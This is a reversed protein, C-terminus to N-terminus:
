YSLTEGKLAPALRPQVRPPAAQEYARAWRLLTAESFPRGLLEIAVPLGDATLGAPLIVAPLGTTSSIANDRVGGDSTGVPPAPLGKVPYVLGDVGHADMLDILRQKLQRQQQLRRLYERNTELVGVDLNERYRTELNGGKLFKGGAIFAAWTAAPSSPGRRRLYADLAVQLEFSNVRLTPMMGVLDMGTTLGDISTRGPGTFHALAREVLANAAAFEPGTRFLDRLIGIRGALPGDGSATAAIPPARGLGEQTSLDDPDFGQIASLVLAADALSRAHVGIRDQTFSIPIVGSRSVLGRTPAIAVIGTNAAPGRISLGTETAIGAAAFGAAVAVATGGSSGGPNRAADHPNLTQGGLSSLGKSDLALEDLNTKILVIAGAARLREVIFADRPPVSGAFTLSGGTTPLDATDVNDKVALPIGHLPGRVGRARREADLERATEIARPNIALVANLKPGQKDYADIRNIYLRVVQEYTVAGASVAAQIDAISATLLEIRRSQAQPAAAILAIALIGLGVRGRRGTTFVVPEPM